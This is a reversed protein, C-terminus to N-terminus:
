LLTPAIDSVTVYSDSRPVTHEVNPGTVIMQATIGGESAYTKDLPFPTTSAEAWGRGTSIFSGRKGMNGFEINYTAQLHESFRGRQYFDSGDAGNDSLFIILTIEYTGLSKLHGILRAIHRDLNEVMAAYLEMKQSERQKATDSLDGWRLVHPNRPPLVQASPTVGAQKLADFRQERYVDYGTDFRGEYLSLDEDTVQLPWRPSTYAAFMFFPRPDDGHEYYDSGAKTIGTEDFHNGAGGSLNFSKEFGYHSPAYEKEYGLHWKGAM